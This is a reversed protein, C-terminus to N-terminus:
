LLRIPRLRQLAAAVLWFEVYLHGCDFSMVAPPLCNRTATTAGTITRWACQIAVVGALVIGRMQPADPELVGFRALCQHEEGIV